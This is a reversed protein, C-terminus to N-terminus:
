KAGGEEHPEYPMQAWAFAVESGLTNPTILSECRKRFCYDRFRKYQEETTGVDCNRAPAALATRAKQVAVLVDYTTYSSDNMHAVFELAKRMAKMNNAEM